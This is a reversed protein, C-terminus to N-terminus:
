SEGIIKKWIWTSITGAAISIVVAIGLVKGKFDELIDVRDEVDCLRKDMKDELRNVVEYIDKLSVKNTM